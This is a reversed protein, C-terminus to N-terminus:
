AEEKFYLGIYRIAEQTKEESSSLPVGYETTKQNSKFILPLLRNREAPLLRYDLVVGSTPIFHAGQNKPHGTPNFDTLHHIKVYQVGHEDTSVAALMSSPHAFYIHVPKTEGCVNYGERIVGKRDLADKLTKLTVTNVNGSAYCLVLLYDNEITRIPLRFFVDALSAKTKEYESNTFRQVHGDNFWIYWERPKTQSSSSPLIGNRNNLIEQVEFKFSYKDLREYSREQKEIIGGAIREVVFNNINDGKLQQCRNGIRQYLENGNLWIPRCAKKVHIICYEHNGATKFEFGIYNNALGQSFRELLNRIKLQYGDRNEKYTWDDNPDDNLYRYDKEIGTVAHTSDHVGIYLDGGEANMLATLERLINKCQKAIDPQGGSNPPFVISTKLELTESEDGIDELVVQSETLRCGTSTESVASTEKTDSTDSPSTASAEVSGDDRRSEPTKERVESGCVGDSVAQNEKPDFVRIGPFACRSEAREEELQLFGRPDFGRVRLHIIDGVQYVQQGGFYWRHEMIGDDLAYYPKNNNDNYVGVVRFEIKQDVKYHECLFAYRDMSLREINNGYVRYYAKITKPVNEKQYPLINYIRFTKNEADRVEFFDYGASDRDLRVVEFEYCNGHQYNM